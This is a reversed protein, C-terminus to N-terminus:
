RRPEPQELRGSSAGPGDGEAGGPVKIWEYTVDPKAVPGAQTQHVVERVKEPGFDYLFPPNAIADTFAQAV